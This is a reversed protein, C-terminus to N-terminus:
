VALFHCFQSEFRFRVSPEQGSIFNSGPCKAAGEKGQEKVLGLPKGVAESLSGLGARDRLSDLLGVVVVVVVM